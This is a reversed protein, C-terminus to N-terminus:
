NQTTPLSVRKKLVKAWDHEDGSELATSYLREVEFDGASESSSNPTIAQESAQEVLKGTVKSSAIQGGRQYLRVMSDAIETGKKRGLFNGRQDYNVEDYRELFANELLEDYQDSDKDFVPYKTLVAELDNAHENIRERFQAKQAEQQLVKRVETQVKSGLRQELLKPDIGDELEEPRVLPENDEYLFDRTAEYQKVREEAGKLKSTLQSIRKEARTPKHEPKPEEGVEPAETEEVNSEVEDGAEVPIEVETASTAEQAETDLVQTKDDTDM